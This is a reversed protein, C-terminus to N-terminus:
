RQGFLWAAAAAAEIAKRSAYQADAVSGAISAETSCRMASAHAAHILKSHPHDKDTAAAVRGASTAAEGARDVAGTRQSESLNPKPKSTAPTATVGNSTVTTM